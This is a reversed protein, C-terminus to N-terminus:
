PATIRTLASTGLVKGTADLAEVMIWSVDTTITIATEFGSRASTTLESKDDVSMVRWEAVETAGNWSAFVAVEGSETREALVAPPDAPRGVWPYRYARYSQKEEPLVWDRLLTGDAAFESAFQQDGWGIFVNGNPLVQMNGQSFSLISEPHVYERVLTATGADHDLAVRIGRSIEHVKPGAGNDFLTVDGNDMMRIDHQYATEVGEGLDYSSRKGGLRWIIEGTARDLKYCAWTNRASVLLNGDTDEGVSNIHFYDYAAEPNEGSVEVIAEDLPIHDLSHWEFIVAGTAIDIEQVISDIAFGDVEGGVPSLDWGIVHYILILATDRPTIVFEHLDAGPYGNGAPFATVLEYSDDRIVFHGYGHGGTVIGQWWTLVPEGQYRQARFDYLEEVTIEAPFFWVPEGANDLISAGNRGTGRKTAIFILGDALGEGHDRTTVLPPRLGPRTRYPDVQAPDEAPNRVPDAFIPKPRSVTFSFDGSEAGAIEHRTRVSVEEGPQFAHDPLFSIGMGDSHPLVIGPHEGSEAGVVVIPGVDEPAIGRLSIGTGPCATRAGPQPYALITAPSTTTPTADQGHLLSRHAVTPTATGVAGRLVSRRSLGSPGARSNVDVFRDDRADSM